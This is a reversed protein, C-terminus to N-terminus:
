NAVHGLAEVNLEVAKFFEDIWLFNARAELSEIAGRIGLREETQESHHEVYRQNGGCYSAAFRDITGRVVGELDGAKRETLLYAYSLAPQRLTDSVFSRIGDYFDAPIEGKKLKNELDKSEKRSIRGFLEELVPRFIARKDDSNLSKQDAGVDSSKGINKPVLFEDLGDAPNRNEMARAENRNLFGAEIGIRHAEYRTKVDARELSDVLLEVYRGADALTTLLSFQCEQEFRVVWPQMSYQRYTLGLQETNNYHADKLHGVLIPPVRLYRCLDEVSFERSALM